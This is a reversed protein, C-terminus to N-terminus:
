VIVISLIPLLFAPYPFVDAKVICDEMSVLTGDVGNMIFSASSSFSSSFMFSYLSARSLLLRGKCGLKGDSSFSRGVICWLRPVVGVPSMFCSSSFSASCFTSPLLPLLLLSSLHSRDEGIVEADFIFYVSSSSAPLFIAVDRRIVEADVIFYVSLRLLSLPFIDIHDEGTVEADVIFYVFSSSSSAPFLFSPSTRELWM